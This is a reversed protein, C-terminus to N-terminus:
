HKKNEVIRFGFVRELRDNFQTTINGALVKSVASRNNYGYGLEYGLDVYKYGMKEIWQAFETLTKIKPKKM